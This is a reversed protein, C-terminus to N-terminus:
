IEETMTMVKMIIKQDVTVSQIVARQNFAFDVAIERQTLAIFQTHIKKIKDLM